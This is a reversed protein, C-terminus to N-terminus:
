NRKRLFTLLAAISRADIFEPHALLAEAENIRWPIVDLPEPEDGPLSQPYLDEAVFVQMLSDLFAPSPAFTMLPTVTRAAFHIEEQLERKIAQLPSEGPDILGKPFGLHYQDLGVGYERILLLTDPDQLVIAMVVNITQGTHNRIREYIRHEGNSFQLEVQEVHFLQSQCGQQISLIQPKKPM